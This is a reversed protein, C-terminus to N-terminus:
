HFIMRMLRVAAIESWSAAAADRNARQLARKASRYRQPDFDRGGMKHEHGMVLGEMWRLYPTNMGPSWPHPCNRAGLGAAAAQEGEAWAFAYRDLQEWQRQQQFSLAPM